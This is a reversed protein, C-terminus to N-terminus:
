TAFQKDTRSSVNEGGVVIKDILRLPSNKSTSLGKLGLIWM